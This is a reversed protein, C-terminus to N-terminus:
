LRSKTASECSAKKLVPQLFPPLSCLPSHYIGDFGSGPVM